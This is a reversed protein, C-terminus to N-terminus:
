SVSRLFRMVSSAAVAEVAAVDAAPPALGSLAGEAALRATSLASAATPRISADRSARLALPVLVTWPAPSM